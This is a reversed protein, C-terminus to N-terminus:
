WCRRPRGRVRGETPDYNWAVSCTPELQLVELTYEPSAQKLDSSAYQSDQLKEM